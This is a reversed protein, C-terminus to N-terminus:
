KVDYAEVKDAMFRPVIVRGRKSDYAFDAPAELGELVPKVEGEFSGKYLAKGGWSSIWFEKDTVILGDLGGNPTKTVKIFKAQKATIGTARPPALFAENIVFVEARSFTNVALGNPTWALGNPGGLEKDKLYVSVKGGKLQYIADAGTTEFKADVATDSVFVRGDPAAAVDNLFAAGKVKLAGKSKGTKADYMRVTDIDAVYLTGKVLAMGKPANLPEKASGEIFKLKTVKGDPALESIFGNGDADLPKGNINSVLYRDADADYLVSEPTKMGEWTVTPTPAKPADPVSKAAEV